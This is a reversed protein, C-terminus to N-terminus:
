KNEEQTQIKEEPITDVKQDNAFIHQIRIDGSLWMVFHNAKWRLEELSGSNNIVYDYEFNSVNPSSLLGVLRDKLTQM